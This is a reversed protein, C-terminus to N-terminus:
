IMSSSVVSKLARRITLYDEMIENDRLMYVIYPGSVTVPKRRRDPLSLQDRSHGYQLEYGLINNYRRKKKSFASESYLDSDISNKDEELKRLKEEVEFRISDRLLQRESEYNQRAALMEAEHQCEVNALKMGRLVEAVETRTRKNDELEGLPQLYELANEAKVEELKQEVQTLREMYLQDKLLFFQKELDGMEGVFEVKRRECEEEDIEPSEDGDSGSGSDTDSDDNSSAKGTDPSVELDMLDDHHDHNLTVHSLSKMEAILNRKVSESNVSM